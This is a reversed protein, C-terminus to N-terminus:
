VILDLWTDGLSFNEKISHYPCKNDADVTLIRIPATPLLVSGLSLSWHLALAKTLLVSPLIIRFYMNKIAPSVLIGPPFSCLNWVSLGRSLNSGLVKMNDPLLALGKAVIAIKEYCHSFKKNWIKLIIFLFSM